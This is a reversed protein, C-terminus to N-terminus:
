VVEQGSSNKNDFFKRMMRIMILFPFVWGIYTCFLGGCLGFIGMIDPYVITILICAILTGICCCTRVKPKNTAGLISVLQERCPYLNIGINTISLILFLIVAIKMAWDGSNALKPRLTFLSVMNSDGLSLYGVVGMLLYILTETAISYMLVKKVKLNLRFFNGKAQQPEYAREQHLLLQSSVHLIPHNDCLWGDLGHM